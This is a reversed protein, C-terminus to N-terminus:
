QLDELFVEMQKYATLFLFKNKQTKRSHLYGETKM